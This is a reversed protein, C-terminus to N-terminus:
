VPARSAVTCCADMLQEVYRARVCAAYGADVGHITAARGEVHLVGVLTRPAQSSRGERMDAASTTQTRSPGSVVLRATGFAFYAMFTYSLSVMLPVDGM